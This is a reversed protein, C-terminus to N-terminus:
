RGAGPLGATSGCSEGKKGEFDPDPSRLWTKTRQPTIGERRLLQRCWEDCIPPLLGHHVCYAKLKATSWQTFPLGLDQPRSTAAEILGLVQERSISSIPGRPNPPAEFSAFGSANFRHLWHYVTDPHCGVQEAVAYPALGSALKAIIRYRQHLRAKLKKDAVKAQLVRREPPSLRRLKLVRVRPM